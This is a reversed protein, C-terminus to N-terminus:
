DSAVVGLRLESSSGRLEPAYMGFGVAPMAHFQGPIEARLRYDLKLKGQNLRSVFFVVKDDRLELNAVAEGFTTGSRLAVPELGAPKPDEFALFEYDNKSEIMLEVLILDGSSVEAGTALPVKRYAVERLATQQGRRDHVTHTRDDRELKFYKREVKLELGAPELDEELTFYSLYANFYLSGVGKKRFTLTHKGSSLEKGSLRLEGDLTLLNKHDVRQTRIVRGDVLVELDYATRDEKAARLYEAFAAITVATDRTSSWYWGNKRHNLLWKVLKPARPDEPDLTILARLFTANSEVPDNWWWWWGETRTELWATENEPDEKLNQAANRLLLRADEKKGVNWLAMAFLSKGYVTLKARRELLYRELIANREGWLSMVYAFYADTDSVWESERYHELHEPLMRNMAARGRTIVEEPVALDSRQAEWLGYLVYATTYISSRDSGWWGWGGDPQQMRVIRALGTAIMDDMLATNYVPNRDYRQYMRRKREAYAADGEGRLQQPNLSDKLKGLEELKVGGFLQLARRTLVAPVFRSMTQETCGYPYELLFPLADIMAGALTPSWRVILETQDVRRAEPVILELSREGEEGASAPISGVHPVTKLMGHVLVPFRLEKADSELDSEAAVKIVAEGESRVRVWWDVRADKGHEVTVWRERDGELELPSQGLEISVRVKKAEGLRNHVNASVMVRDRERFFRPAQLRVLLKQTTVIAASAEGVRTDEGVAIAKVRWSTLNDPFKWKLVARGTADTRAVAFAATDAFSRRVEPARLAAGEGANARAEAPGDPSADKEEVAQAALPAASAEVGGGGSGVGRRGLGTAGPAEAKALGDAGGVVQDLTEADGRRFDVQHQFFDGAALLLAHAQLAPDLVRQGSDYRRRLNSGSSPQHHRLRGWFHKRVDPTLEPQIYLVSRDFVSVAVEASVPKGDPTRTVIEVEAQAGPRYEPKRPLITVEIEAKEPPVFVERVEESLRGGAILSAEVFFNPVHAETIPLEIVKTKGELALVVPSLLHGQDVGSSFLVHAGAVDSSILLKATDGVRYTRRDTIIELHNLKFRQGELGPGWVWVLTNGEVEGGWADKTRYSLRYRGASPPDWRLELEGAANTARAATHIPKSGDGEFIRVEGTTAIPDGGPLLTRVDLRITDGTLYYGRDTELHVHFQNRTAVVEGEGRITRRSADTVEAEVIFRQDQDGYREKASSTDLEVAISGQADLLGRGEKVLERRPAPPPGWWGYWRWPRPGSDEWWDLWPYAYYARGYGAGYLWDWRGPISYQFEHDTRYIKYRVKAGEVPGGFYYDARIKVGIKEGLKAPGDGVSVKVELEPAKYEEVRFQNGASTVWRGDVRVEARYMGLAATAALPLELSAGGNPGAALRRELVKAGKADYIDISFNKVSTAPLYEGKRKVRAWLQLKVTDKPRYVPRDTFMLAFTGSEEVSPSYGWSFWGGAWALEGERRVSIVRQGHPTRRRIRALGDAGTKAQEKRHRFSQKNTQHDWDSWYEFIEVAAGAVPTGSRADVVWALEGDKGPKLLLGLQELMLLGRALPEKSGADARLEILWLGPESLPIPQESKKVRHTGDDELALEVERWEGRIYKRYNHRDDYHLLWSTPNDAVGSHAIGGQQGAIWAEEFDGLLRATDLEVMRVRATSVNRFQLSLRANEGAVQPLHQDLVLEKKEILELQARAQAAASDSPKQELLARYEKVAQSYKQRSQHFAATALKAKEAWDSRPHKEILASFLRVPSEDEPLRYVGIHTAILGLVEDDELEWPRREELVKQYPQQGMWYYHSLRQLRPEGDRALFLQAQRYYSEAAFEEDPTADIRRIEDLLYKMKEVDHLEPSYKAPKEFFVVNGEEDVPLGRPQARHLIQRASWQDVQEDAGKEDVTDDERAEDWAYYWYGWSPDHPTFRAIAAVLDLQAELRERLIKPDGSRHEQFIERARELHRIAAARDLRHTDQYTGQDWRARLLEGGKKVGWHPIALLLNGLTRRLRAEDLTGAYLELADEHWRLGQGYEGLAFASTTARQVATVARPDRPHRLVLSEFQTQAERWLQREFASQAGEWLADATGEGASAKKEELRALAAQRRAEREAARAGDGPEEATEPEPAPAPARERRECAFGGLAALLALTKFCRTLSIM